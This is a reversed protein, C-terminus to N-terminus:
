TYPKVSSEVLRLLAPLRLASVISKCLWAVTCQMALSECWNSRASSYSVVLRKLDFRFIM